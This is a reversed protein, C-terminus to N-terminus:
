RLPGALDLVRRGAGALEPLQDMACWRMAAIEWPTTVAAPAAGARGRFLQDSHRKSVYEAILELEGDIAYGTEEAVERAAADLFTESPDVWGGPLSWRRRYTNKVLLVEDLENVVVVMVGRTPAGGLRSVVLRRAIGGAEFVLSVFQRPTL